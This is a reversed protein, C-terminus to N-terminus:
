RLLIKNIKEENAYFTMKKM